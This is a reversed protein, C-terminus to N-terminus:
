DLRPNVPQRVEVFQSLWDTLYWDLNADLWERMKEWFLYNTSEDEDADSTYTRRYIVLEHFCDEIGYRIDQMINFYYPMDAYGYDVLHKYVLQFSQCHAVIAQESLTALLKQHEVDAFKVEDMGDM